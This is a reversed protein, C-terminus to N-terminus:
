AQAVDITYNRNTTIIIASGVVQKLNRGGYALKSGSEYVYTTISVPSGAAHGYEIIDPIRGKEKLIDYVKNFLEEKTMPRNM